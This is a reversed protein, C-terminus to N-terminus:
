GAHEERDGENREATKRSSCVVGGTNEKDFEGIEESRISNPNQRWWKWLVRRILDVIVMMFTPWM